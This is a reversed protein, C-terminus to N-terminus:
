TPVVRGTIETLTAYTLKHSITDIVVRVNTLGLRPRTITIVDDIDFIPNPACTLYVQWADSLSQKLYTNAALVAQTSKTIFNSSVFEPIDGVPGKVYMPSNPNLTEAEGLVPQTNTYANGTTTTAGTAVQTSTGTVIIDNYIATRTMQVRVETPTSYASGFLATSGTGTGSGFVLDPTSAFNWVVPLNQPTPVPYGVVVGTANFFLEYGVAAALQQAATWPNSGATFTAKPVKQTTPTIQFKLPPTTWWVTKILHQIETVFNGTVAPVNYPAKWLRQAILWSRDYLELTVSLDTNTDDVTTTAIQYLGLPVWKTTLKQTTVSLIRTRVKIENGFPALVSSPNNPLLPTPPIYSPIVATLSGSRRVQANRTVLFTASSVPVVFRTAVGQRYVTCTAEVLLAGYRLSDIFNVTIATVPM